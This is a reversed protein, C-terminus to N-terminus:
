NKPQVRIKQGPTLTVRGTPPWNNLRRIQIADKDFFRAVRALTEGHQARYIGRHNAEPRRLPPPCPNTNPGNWPRALEGVWKPCPGYDLPQPTGTWWSTRKTAGNWSFSLHIHDTHPSYGTYPQWGADPNYARWIEGAWIAYMIGLERAHAAPQGDVTRTLWALARTAIRRDTPNHANLAWDWARGEKHESLGGTGCARVIGLDGGGFKTLLLSRTALVGPKAVPDCSVQGQYPAYDDVAKAHAPATASLIAASLAAAVLTHVVRRLTASRVPQDVRATRTTTSAFTDSSPPTTTLPTRLRRPSM